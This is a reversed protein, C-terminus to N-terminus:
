NNVRVSLLDEHTQCTKELKYNPIAIVYYGSWFNQNSNSLKYYKAKGRGPTMIAQFVHPWIWNLLFWCMCTLFFGFMHWQSNVTFIFWVFQLSFLIKNGSCNLVKYHLEHILGLPKKWNILLGSCWKILKSVGFIMLMNILWKQLSHVNYVLSQILEKLM